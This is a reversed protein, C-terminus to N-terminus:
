KKLVKRWVRFDRDSFTVVLNYKFINFFDADREVFVNFEDIRDAYLSWFAVEYNGFSLLRQIV